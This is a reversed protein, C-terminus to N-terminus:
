ANLTEYLDNWLPNDREILVLKDKRSGSKIQKERAIAEYPEMWVLLKCGYRKTFGAIAGERHLAARRAIDSTVGVYLTGNRRSAMITVYPRKM